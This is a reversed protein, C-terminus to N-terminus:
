EGASILREIRRNLDYRRESSEAIQKKIVDYAEDLAKEDRPLQATIGMAVLQRSANYYEDALRQALEAVEKDAVQTSARLIRSSLNM